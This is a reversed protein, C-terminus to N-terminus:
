PRTNEGLAIRLPVLCRWDPHSVFDVTEDYVFIDDIPFATMLDTGGVSQIEIFGKDDTIYEINVKVSVLRCLRAEDGFARALVREGM